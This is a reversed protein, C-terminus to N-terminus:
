ETLYASRKLNAATDEPQKGSVTGLFRQFDPDHRLLTRGTEILADVQEETLSFSTPIKNLVYKLEIQPVQEFGINIFYPSVQNDPTSVLEAWAALKQKVMNITAANYRHLQAHTTANMSALIGPQKNTKDMDSVQETSANVSIFVIKSPAKEGLASLLATPGGSVAIVDTMARLGINDTIGGDVYHVYKRNEKDSYSSAGDYLIGFEEDEQALQAATPPWKAFGDCGAFNEIVVPNFVVPVASSAAVANAVPYTSLDSCLLDFYGQIFSFRFGKALDSANIVIIPGDPRIMDAFTADHFLIDQYYEIARQTRDKSGFWHFPNLVSKKLDGEVDHRLFAEEFTDFIGDGNLGYYAATFSGGSVSSINDVEDLLRREKGDIIVTTDRLEQLVGYAMAAARTGGGSFSLFFTIDSNRKFEAWTKLNYVPGTPQAPKPENVIVGYSACGGLLTLVLALGCGKRVLPLIGSSLWPMVQSITLSQRLLYM